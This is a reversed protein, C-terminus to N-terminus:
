AYVRPHNAVTATNNNTIALGGKYDILDRTLPSYFVLSQPRVKDATMGTSLSKIEDATLEVNWIAAEAIRGTHYFGLTNLRRVGILTETPTTGGFTPTITGGGVGGLWPQGGGSGSRVTAAIHTYANATYTNTSYTFLSATQLFAKNVDLGLMVRLSGGDGLAMCTTLVNAAATVWCSMTFPFATVTAGASLHQSNAGTFQYAM